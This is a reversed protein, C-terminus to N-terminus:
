RYWLISEPFGMAKLQELHIWTKLNDLERNRDSEVLFDSMGKFTKYLRPYKEKDLEEFEEALESVWDLVTEPNPSLGGCECRNPIGDRSKEDETIVHGYEKSCQDPPEISPYRM